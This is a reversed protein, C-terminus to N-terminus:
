SGTPDRSRHTKKSKFRRAIAIIMVRSLLNMMDVLEDYCFFVDFFRHCNKLNESTKM